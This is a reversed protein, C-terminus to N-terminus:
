VYGTHWGATNRPHGDWNNNRNTCLDVSEWKGNIYVYNWYHDSGHHITCKVGHVDCICKVLRAFDACNARIVGNPYSEFLKQPCTSNNRYGKYSHKISKIAQEASMNATKTAYNASSNGIIKQAGKEFYTPGWSRPAWTCIDAGCDEGNVNTLGGGGSSGNGQNMASILSKEAEQQAKMYSSYNNALPNVTIKSHKGGIGGGWVYKDVFFRGKEFGAYRTFKTDKIAKIIDEYQKEYFQDSLEMYIFKNTHLGKFVEPMNFTLKYKDRISEMMTIEAIKKNNEPNNTANNEAVGDTSTLTSDDSTTIETGISTNDTM